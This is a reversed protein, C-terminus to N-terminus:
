SIKKEILPIINEILTLNSEVKLINLFAL